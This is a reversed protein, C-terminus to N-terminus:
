IALQPGSMMVSSRRVVVRQGSEVCSKWVFSAFGPTVPWETGVSFVIHGNLFIDLLVTEALLDLIDDVCGHLSFRGFQDREHYASPFGRGVCVQIKSLIGDDYRAASM